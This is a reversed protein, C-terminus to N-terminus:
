IEGRAYEAVDLLVTAILKNRVPEADQLGRELDRLWTKDFRALVVYGDVAAALAQADVGSLLSPTDIIIHAHTDAAQAVLTEMADSALLDTVAPNGAVASAGLPLLWLPASTDRWIVDPLQAAGSLVELLGSSGGTTRASQSTKDTRCDIVLTPGSIRALVAALSFVAQPALDGPTAATMAIIHARSSGKARDNRLTLALRRIEAAYRGAEFAPDAATDFHRDGLASPAAFRQKRYPKAPYPPVTAVCRAGTLTEIAAISRVKGDARWNRLLAVMVGVTLGAFLGGVYVLRRIPHSPYAPPMARTVIVRDEIAPTPAAGGVDKAVGLQRQVYLEAVRNVVSAARDPDSSEFSVKIANSVGMRDVRLRKQFTELALTQPDPHPRHGPLISWAPRDAAPPAFEPDGLLNLTRLTELAIQGSGLVAVQAQVMAPEILKTQFVSNPRFLGPPQPEIVVVGTATYVPPTVAVYVIAAVTFLAGVVM